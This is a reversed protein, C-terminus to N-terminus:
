TLVRGADRGFFDAIRRLRDAQVPIPELSTAFRCRALFTRDHLTLVGPAERRFYRACRGAQRRITFAADRRDIGEAFEEALILCIDRYMAALRRSLRNGTEVPQRTVIAASGVLRGRKALRLAVCLDQSIRLNGPLPLAARAAATSLVSASLNFDMNRLLPRVPREEIRTAATSFEQMPPPTDQSGIMGHALVADYRHMLDLLHGTSGGLIVDDADIIRLYPQSAREILVTTAHFVGRNQGGDILTIPHRAAMATVAAVSEDSSADDYVMVEGGTVAREALAAALVAAIYRQKNYLPVCYSVTM